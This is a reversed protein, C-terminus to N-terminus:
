QLSADAVPANEAATDANQDPEEKTVAGASSTEAPETKPAPESPVPDPKRYHYGLSGESVSLTEEVLEHDPTEISLVYTGFFLAPIEYWTEGPPCAATNKALYEDSFYVQDLRVASGKPVKIRYYEKLFQDAEVKWCNIFFLKDAPTHVLELNFGSLREMENGSCRIHINALGNGSEYDMVKRVKVPEFKTIADHDTNEDVYKLFREENFFETETLDTYEKVKAYNEDICAQFFREATKEPGYYVMTVTCVSIVLCLLFFLIILAKFFRKLRGQKKKETAESLEYFPDYAPKTQVPPEEMTKVPEPEKEPKKKSRRPTQRTFTEEFTELSEIHMDSFVASPEPVTYMPERHSLVPEEREPREEM